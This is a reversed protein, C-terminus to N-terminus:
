ETYFKVPFRKANNEFVEKQPKGMLEFTINDTFGFGIDIKKDDSLGTFVADCFEDLPVGHPTAGGLSTQVAPPILEVVRCNTKSLSYRLNVTYSHLAVKCACYIPAFPMPIYAGGSTVNVILSNKNGKILLPILLHNLHIPASLLIDIESQREQWVANDEALSIRRQIGANNILIDLDSFNNVIYNSLEERETHIKLDNKFINIKPFDTKIKKLRNEDRGTILVNSGAMMFRKALGFGIGNSGGTILVSKNKFTM